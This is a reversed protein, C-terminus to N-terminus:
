RVSLCFIYGVASCIRCILNKQIVYYIIETKAKSLLLLFDVKETKKAYIDTGIYLILPM